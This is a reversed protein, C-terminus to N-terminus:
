SRHVREPKAVTITDISSKCHFLLTPAILSLSLSASSHFALHLSRNLMCPNSSSSADRPPPEPRFNRTQALFITSLTFSVFINFCVENDGFRRESEAQGSLPRSTSANECRNNKGFHGYSHAVSSPACLQPGRHLSTSVSSVFALAFIAAPGIRSDENRECSLM